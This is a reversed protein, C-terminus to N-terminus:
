EIVNTILGLFVLDTDGINEIAHTEGSPCLTVDGAELEVETGNDYYRAKGELIVYVEQENEHLHEGITHGPALVQKAFLRGAGNFQDQTIFHTRKVEGTGGALGTVVDTVVDQKKIIM